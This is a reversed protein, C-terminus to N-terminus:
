NTFDETLWTQGAGDHYIGIGVQHFSPNIINCAHSGTCGPVPTPNTEAMMMADLQQLDTLENGYAAEGVNEGATTYTICIDAPFQDHSISGVSAMHVSHGYSGVCTSTGNTETMNLVLPAVGYQARDHNLLSLVSQICGSQSGPCTSTAGTPTPTATRIPTATPTATRIPTATPTATRIPTATPTATRVLTATPTPTSTSAPATGGSAGIVLSVDDIAFITPYTGSTVAAFSLQVQQGAYPALTSAMNFSKQTWGANIGCVRVPYGIPTGTATRFQMTLTDTCFGSTLGAIYQWYTLTASSITAPLRVTQYLQDNCSLAGCLSASHTGTHARATTILTRGGNSSSSWSVTGSEFGGNALQEGSVPIPTNTPTPTSTPNTTTTRTATPTATRTPTSTPTTSTSPGALDRALNWADPTGLGTVADWGAGANYKGNTGSTVDHFGPYSAGSSFAYLSPALFGLVPKSQAQLYQNFLATLGTWVPSALSTGGFQGCSGAGYCVLAGTNPDADSSIDPYGRKGNAALSGGTQWSPRTFIASYGGGSGEPGCSACYAWASEGPNSTGVLGNFKTGGVSTVHPSSAPYDPYPDVGTGSNTPDCSSGEDGSSFFYNHGTAANASFIKEAAQTWSDTASGAECGGWSNNIQRNVNADSGALNMADLLGQDTPNGQSDTPAEYYEITAAPAIAGTYEIDLGAEGDDALTSGGDVAIVKLRGNAQTAVAAGTSSGFKALATDTAPAGWLVIGIHQGSGTYGANWLPPVDYANAFDQPYYPTGGHAVGNTFGKVFQRYTSLGTIGDVVDSVSADVVPDRDPAYFTRDNRGLTVKYQNISTHLMQEVQSVTGQADVLLHNPYTQTVTLGHDQLWSTVQREQDPTPNYLQNEEDLSLFQHYQPSAPDEVTQLFQQLGDQNRLPLSVTITIRDGGARPGVLQAQGSVVPGPVIGQLGKPQLPAAFVHAITSPPVALCMTAAVVLWGFLARRSLSTFGEQVDRGRAAPGM